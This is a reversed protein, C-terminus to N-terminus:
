GAQREAPRPAASGKRLDQIERRLEMKERLLEDVEEPRAKELKEQVERRRRANGAERLRGLCAEGEQLSAEPGPAAAIRLLLAQIEADKLCSGLRPYSVESGSRLLDKLAPWIREVDTGALDEDKLTPVLAQRAEANEVLVRLLRIAPGAPAASVGAPVTARVSSRREALARKLEQLIIGDEIRLLDALLKAQESREVPSELRAVFPLVLNLAEIKGATTGIDLRAAAERALYEIYPPAGSVLKAYRDPGDERIFRDPDKGGPLGLVRVDFGSELLIDLSRRTAARGASDPDFNVVIRQTFRGLLKAHGATFGTGLTAVLNRFGAQYLSLFDLYGEVLIAFGAKRVAEGSHNLGYLNDGKHFVPTDPSNLYKPEGDAIVRGGFGVCEGSLGHIPFMVRNRFRDYTRGTEEKRLLVGASLLHAETFGAALLTRKLGDWSESAFGLGFEEITASTLGRQALYDACRKGQAGSRLRTRFYDLAARNVKLLIQRESSPGGSREPIPVGYRRALARLADPFEVKEYLMLFKFADGGTGCGFCYFLQKGADVYFSPTKEQHFPCLGRYRNGSKKLPLYGSIIERIDAVARVKELFETEGRASV